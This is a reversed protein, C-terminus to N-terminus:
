RAVTTACLSRSQANNFFILNYPGIVCGCAELDTRMEPMHAAAHQDFLFIALRVAFHEVERPINTPGM